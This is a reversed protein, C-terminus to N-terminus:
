DESCSAKRTLKNIKRYLISINIISIILLFFFMFVLAYEGSQAFYGPSNVVTYCLMGQAFASLVWWEQKSTRLIIGTVILAIATIFEIALHFSISVPTTELEPVNGTTLFFLWQFFMLAGILVSSIKVFKM